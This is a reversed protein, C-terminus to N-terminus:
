SVEELKLTLTKNFNSNPSQNESTPAPGGEAAETDDRHIDIRDGNQLYFAISSHDASNLVYILNQTESTNPPSKSNPVTEINIKPPCYNIQAPSHIGNSDTSNLIWPTQTHNGQISHKKHSKKNRDRINNMNEMAGPPLHINSLSINVRLTKPKRGRREIYDEDRNSQHRCKKNNPSYTCISNYNTFLLCYCIPNSSIYILSYPYLVM